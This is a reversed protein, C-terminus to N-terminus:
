INVQPCHALICSPGDGIQMRLYESYCPRCFTHECGLAFSVSLDCEDDCCIRCQFTQNDSIRSEREKNPSSKFAILSNSYLDLGSDGMIKDTNAFFSDLLKEKNWRFAQLLVQSSDTDLDLLGAVEGVLKKMRPVVSAYQTIIYEGDPIILVPNEELHTSRYSGVSFRKLDSTTGDHSTSSSSISGMPSSFSLGLNDKSENLFSSNNNNDEEEIEYENDDDDDEEYIYEEDDDYTDDLNDNDM